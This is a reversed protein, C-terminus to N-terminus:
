YGAFTESKQQYPKPCGCLPYDRFQARDKSASASYRRFHGPRDLSQSSLPRALGARSPPASLLRPAVFFDTSTQMTPPVFAPLSRRSGSGSSLASFSSGSSLSPHFQRQSYVPQASVPRSTPPKHSVGLESRLSQASPTGARGRISSAFSPVSQTAPQSSPTYRIPTGGMRNFCSATMIVPTDMEAAPENRDPGGKRPQAVAIDNTKSKLKLLPREYFTAFGRRRQRAVLNVNQGPNRVDPAGLM